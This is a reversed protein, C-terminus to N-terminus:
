KEKTIVPALNDVGCNGFFRDIYLFDIDSDANSDMFRTWVVVSRSIVMREGDIMIIIKSDSPNGRILTFSGPTLFNGDCAIYKNANEIYKIYILQIRLNWMERQRDPDNMTKRFTQLTKNYGEKVVVVDFLDTLINFYRGDYKWMIEFNRLPEQIYDRYDIARFSNISTEQIHRGVVGELRTLQNKIDWLGIRKKKGQNTNSM